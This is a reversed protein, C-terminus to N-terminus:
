VYIYRFLWSRVGCAGTLVASVKGSTVAMVTLHPEEREDDRPIAEQLSWLALSVLSTTPPHSARTWRDRRHTPRQKM